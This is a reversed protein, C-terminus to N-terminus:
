SALPAVQGEGRGQVFSKAKRLNTKEMQLICPQFQIAKRLKKRSRLGQHTELNPEWHEVLESNCLIWIGPM